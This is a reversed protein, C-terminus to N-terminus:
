KGRELENPFYFPQDGIWLWALERGFPDTHSGAYEPDRVLYISDGNRLANTLAQELRQQHTRALDPDVGYEAANVGLLRVKHARTEGPQQELMGPGLLSPGLNKSVTITDGDVVDRVFPMWAEEIVEDAENFPSKPEPPVWDRPGFTSQFGDRWVVDWNVPADKGSTALRNFREVALDTIQRSIGGENYNRDAM